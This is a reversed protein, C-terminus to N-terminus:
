GAPPEGARAESPHDAPERRATFMDIAMLGVGICIAIDAVNFTPWHDTVGWSGFVSSIVRNMTEVWDARFDIFDVVHRRAIRDAFNGLAGGLVLPLGWKLAHQRASIRGYLSVIFGIALISVIIFFPRRIYDPSGSFLGWAGGQNYALRFSLHNAILELSGGSLALETLRIEAWAKSLIDALFAIAAVLGFFVYTPRSEQPEADAAASPPSAPAPEHGSDGPASSEESALGEGTVPEAADSARDPEAAANPEPATPMSSPESMPQPNIRCTAPKPWDHPM